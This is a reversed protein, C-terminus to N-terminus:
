KKQTDKYFIDHTYICDYLKPNYIHCYRKDQCLLIYLPRLAFVFAEKHNKLHVNIENLEGKYTYRVIGHEFGICECIGSCISCLNESNSFLNFKLTSSGLNIVLIIYIM